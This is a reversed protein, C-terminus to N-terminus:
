LKKLDVDKRFYPLVIAEVLQAPTHHDDYNDMIKAAIDEVLEKQNMRRLIRGDLLSSLTLSNGELRRLRDFLGNIKIQHTGTLTSKCKSKSTEELLIRAKQMAKQRSRNGAFTAFKINEEVSSFVKQVSIQKSREKSANRCLNSLHRCLLIGQEIFCEYDPSQEFGDRRANLRLSYNLHIEGIHWTAFRRETFLDALYYEDGVEINGQRIHIGRMRENQILSAKYTCKAFWGRGLCRNNNDQIDFHQLETIKDNSQGSIAFLNKHPKFLKKGNLYINYTKYGDICALNDEIEKAFSFSTKDFPIPTVQSLYDSIKDTNMLDDRHFRHVNKMVVKFYNAPEDTKAHREKQTVVKRIIEFLDADDSMNRCENRLKIANWVAVSIPEKALSRTEFTVEDCYGIGGLRGIGRFGRSEGNIKSSVAISTLISEAHGFAVGAGNDIICISRKDGDVQIDIRSSNNNIIGKSIAKDISDASNQVYERLVMMANSYMGSTIIDLIQKGARININNM